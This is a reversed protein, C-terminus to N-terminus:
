KKERTKRSKHQKHQKYHQKNRNNENHQKTTKKKKLCFVAYSIRMLSQLESTHEESRKILLGRLPFNKLRTDTPPCRKRHPDSPYGTRRRNCEQIRQVPPESLEETRGSSGIGIRKRRRRRRDYPRRRRM